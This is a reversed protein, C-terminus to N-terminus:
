RYNIYNKKIYTTSLFLFFQEPNDRTIGTTADYVSSKYWLHISLYANETRRIIQRPKFVRLFVM